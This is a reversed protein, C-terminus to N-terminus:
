KCDVGEVRGWEVSSEREEGRRSPGNKATRAMASIDARPDGTAESTKVKVASSTREAM